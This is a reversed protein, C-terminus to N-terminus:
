LPAQRDRYPANQDGKMGASAARVRFSRPSEGRRHIDWMTAYAVEIGRRFPDGDFLPCTRRSDELKRRIKSLGAPDTALKLALAEYDELSNTILEPLGAAKLLSAGVRGAFATGVCTIM